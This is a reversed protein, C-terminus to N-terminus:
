AAKSSLKNYVKLAGTGITIAALIIGWGSKLMDAASKWMTARHTSQFQEKKAELENQEQTLKAYGLELEAKQNELDMMIADFGNSSDYHTKLRKITDEHASNMRKFDRVQDKEFKNQNRLDEIMEDRSSLLTELEEVRKTLAHNGNKDIVRQTLEDYIEECRHAFLYEHLAQEDGFIALGCLVGGLTRHEQTDIFFAKNHQAHLTSFKGWVPESATWHHNEVAFDDPDITPDYEMRNNYYPSFDRDMVAIRMNKIYDPVRFPDVDVRVGVKVKIKDSRELCQRVLPEYDSFTSVPNVTVFSEPVSVDRSTPIRTDQAICEKTAHIRSEITVYTGLEDIFLSHNQLYHSPCRIEIKKSNTTKIEGNKVFANERMKLEIVVFNTTEQLRYKDHNYISSVRVPETRLSTLLFIDERTYNKISVDWHTGAGISSSHRNSWDASDNVTTSYIFGPKQDGKLLRGFSFSRM